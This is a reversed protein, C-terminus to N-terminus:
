LFADHFDAVAVCTGVHLGEFCELGVVQPALPDIVHVGVGLVCTIHDVTIVAVPWQENIVNPAICPELIGTLVAYCRRLVLRLAVRM